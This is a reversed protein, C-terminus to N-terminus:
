VEKISYCSQLIGVEICVRSIGEDCAPISSLIIYLPLHNTQDLASKCFCSSGRGRGMEKYLSGTMTISVQLRLVSSTSVPLLRPSVQGALRDKDNPRLNHCVFVCVCLTSREQLSVQGKAELHVFVCPCTYGGMCACVYMLELYLESLSCKDLIHSTKPETGLVSLFLPDQILFPLFSSQILRSHFKTASTM